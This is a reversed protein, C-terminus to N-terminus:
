READSGAHPTTRAFPDRLWRVCPSPVSPQHGQYRSAFKSDHTLFKLRDSLEVKPEGEIGPSCPTPVTNVLRVWTDSADLREGQNEQM